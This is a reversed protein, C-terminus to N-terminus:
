HKVIPQFHGHLSRRAQEEVVGAFAKIHGFIVGEAVLGRADDQQDLPGDPRTHSLIQVDPTAAAEFEQAAAEEESDGGRSDGGKGEEEQGPRSMRHSPSVREDSAASAGREISYVSCTSSDRQQSQSSRPQLGERNSGLFVNEEVGWTM